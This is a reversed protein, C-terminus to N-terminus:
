KGNTKEKSADGAAKLRGVIKGNEYIPEDLTTEEPKRTQTNAM